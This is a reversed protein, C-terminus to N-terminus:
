STTAPTATTSVAPIPEEAPNYRILHLTQEFKGGSFTHELNLIKFIGSFSSEANTEAIGWENYDTITKFSLRVFVDGEGFRIGEISSPDAFTETRGPKNKVPRIKDSSWFLQYRINDQRIFDPDGIIRLKVELMDGASKELQQKLLTTVTQSKTDLNFSDTHSSTGSTIATTATCTKDKNLESRNKAANDQFEPKDKQTQEVAAMGASSALNFAKVYTIYYTKFDLDFSIIDSNKGTYIYDYERIPTPPLSMPAEPIRVQYIDYPAVTFEYKKSVTSTTKDSGMNYTITQTKFWKIPKGAGLKNVSPDEEFTPEKVQDRIYTSSCIVKSIIDVITTGRSINWMVGTTPETNDAAIVNTTQSNKKGSQPGVVSKAAADAGTSSNSSSTPAANSTAEPMNNTVSNAVLTYPIIEKALIKANAISPDFYFRFENGEEIVKDEELKRQRKTLAAALTEKYKGVDSYDERNGGVDVLDPDYSGFFEAVTCEKKITIQCDFPITVTSEALTQEASPAATVHYEAGRATIKMTIDLITIYLVKEQCIQGAPVPGGSTEDIAFFEIVLAWPIMKPNVQYGHTQGTEIIKDIFSVGYTEIIDFEFISTSVMRSRADNAVTNSFTLKDFYFNPGYEPELGPATTKYASAIVPKRSRFDIDQRPPFEKTDSFPVPYLSINYTWSPYKRLVNTKM